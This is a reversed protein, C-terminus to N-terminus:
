FCGQNEHKKRDYIEQRVIEVEKDIESLCLEDTRFIIMLSFLVDSQNVIEKAM